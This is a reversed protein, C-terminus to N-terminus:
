TSLCCRVMNVLSAAAAAKDAHLMVTWAHKQLPGASLRNWRQTAALRHLKTWVAPLVVQLLSFLSLAKLLSKMATNNEVAAFKLGLADMGPTSGCFMLSALSVALPILPKVHAQVGAPLAFCFGDVLVGACFLNFFLSSFCRSLIVSTLLPAASSPTASM